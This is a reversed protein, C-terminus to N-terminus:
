GDYILAILAVVTKRDEGRRVVTISPVASFLGKTSSDLAMIGMNEIEFDELQYFSAVSYRRNFLNTLIHIMTM